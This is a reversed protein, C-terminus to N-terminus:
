SGVACSHHPSQSTTLAYPLCIEKKGSYPKVTICLDTNKSEAATGFVKDLGTGVTVPTGYYSNRAVVSGSRLTGLAAGSDIVVNCEARSQFANFSMWTATKVIINRSFVVDRVSEGAVLAMGENTQQSEISHLINDKVVVASADGSVSVGRSVDFFVNDLIDANKATAHAVIASGWSGSGGCQRDTKKWGWFRNGIARVPRGSDLAGGKLDIANEACACAGNPDLRGSCDSYRAPTLYIDNGAIILGSFDASYNLAPNVITQIGDNCDYIENNLIRTDLISVPAPRTQFGQLGICVADGGRHFDMNGILSNQIANGHSGNHISIGEYFGEIRMQDITNNSAGNTFRVVAQRDPTGEISLREVYWHSAGDFELSQILAQSSLPLASPHDSSGDDLVIARPLESTGSRRLVINGVNRYDAPRVCFVRYRSDNLYQWDAIDSIVFVDSSGSACDPLDASRLFADAYSPRSPAIVNDESRQESATQDEGGSSPTEAGSGYASEGSEVGTTKGTLGPGDAGCGALALAFILLAVLLWPSCCSNMMM